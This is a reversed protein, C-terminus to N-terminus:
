PAATHSRARPARNEPSSARDRRPVTSPKGHNPMLQRGQRSIRGQRARARAKRWGSGSRAPRAKARPKRASRRCATATGTALSSVGFYSSAGSRTTGDSGAFYRRRRFWKRRPGLDRRKRGTPIRQLDRHIFLRVRLQAARLRQEAVCHRRAAVTSLRASSQQDLVRSASARLHVLTGWRPSTTPAEVRAAELLGYGPIASATLSLCCLVALIAPGCRHAHRPGSSREARRAGSARGRPAVVEGRPASRYRALAARHGRRVGGAVGM